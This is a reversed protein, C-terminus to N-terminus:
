WQQQDKSLGTERLIENVVASRESEREEFFTAHGTSIKVALEDPKCIPRSERQSFRYIQSTIHPSVGLKAGPSKSIENKVSIFAISFPELSSPKQGWLRAGSNSVGSHVLGSALRRSLYV